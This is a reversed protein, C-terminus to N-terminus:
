LKRRHSHHAYFKDFAEDPTDQVGGISLSQATALGDMFAEKMDAEYQELSVDTRWVDYSTKYTIM